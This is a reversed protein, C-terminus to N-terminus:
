EFMTKPITSGCIEYLNSWAIRIQFFVNKEYDEVVFGDDGDVGEWVSDIVVEESNIIMRARVPDGPKIDYHSIPGTAHIVYADEIEILPIETSVSDFPKDELENWSHTHEPLETLYGKGELKDDTVYGSLDPQPVEQWAEGEATKTLVQGETGGEPLSAGGEEELAKIRNEHDTYVDPTPEAPDEGDMFGHDKVTFANVMARTVIRRDADPDDEDYGIFTLRVQEAGELSEWPIECRGEELKMKKPLEGGYFVCNVREMDDWESDLAAELYDIEINGRVIETEGTIKITKKEVSVTYIM